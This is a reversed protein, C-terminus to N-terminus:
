SNTQPYFVISIRRKILSYIYVEAWFKLTIRTDRNSVIGKSARYKLKINKHFLAVFESVTIDITTPIFWAM